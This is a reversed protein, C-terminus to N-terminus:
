RRLKKWYERIVKKQSELLSWDVEIENYNIADECYWGNYIRYCAV